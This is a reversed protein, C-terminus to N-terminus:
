KTRSRSIKGKETGIKSGCIYCREPVSHGEKNTMTNRFILCNTLLIFIPNFISTM